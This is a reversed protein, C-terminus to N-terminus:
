RESTSYFFRRINCRVVTKWPSIYRWPECLIQMATMTLQLHNSAIVLDTSTGTLPSVIAVTNTFLVAGNQRENQEWGHLESIQPTLGVLVIATAFEGCKWHRVSEHFAFLRVFCLFSWYVSSFLLRCWEIINNENQRHTQRVM